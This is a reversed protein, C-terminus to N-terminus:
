TLGVNNRLAEIVITLHADDLAAPVTMGEDLSKKTIWQDMYLKAVKAEDARIYSQRQQDLLASQRGTSGAVPFSDLRTDATKARTAEATEKINALNAPLVYTNTYDKGDNDLEFGAVQVPLVYSLQYDKVATDKLIGALQAPMLSGVEYSAKTVEVETKELEAQSILVQKDKLSAEKDLLTSQKPLTVTLQYDKLETDKTVDSIQASVMDISKQAKELEKPLLNALQYDATQLATKGQEYQNQLIAHQVNQGALELKKLAIEVEAAEAQSRVLMAQAKTVELQVRGTIVAVEAARGQAQVLLAQLYAQDKGMLFAMSQQLVTQISQLYVEAYENAHIRGARFQSELHLSTTKMLQDFVGSGEIDQTTLAEITLKDVNAYFPSTSTNPLDFEADGLNLAPISYDQGELLADELALAVAVADYPTTADVTM